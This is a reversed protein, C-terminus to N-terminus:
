ARHAERERAAGSRNQQQAVAALASNTYSCEVNKLPAPAFHAWQEFQLIVTGCLSNLEQHLHEVEADADLRLFLSRSSKIYRLPHAMTCSDYSIWKKALM